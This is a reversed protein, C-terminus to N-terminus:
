GVELARNSGTEGLRALFRFLGDSSGLLLPKVDYFTNLSFCSLQCQFRIKFDDYCAVLDDVSVYKHRVIDTIEDGSWGDIRLDFSLVVM